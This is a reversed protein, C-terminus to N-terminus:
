GSSQSFQFVVPFCRSLRSERADEDLFCFTEKEAELVRIPLLRECVVTVLPLTSPSRHKALEREAEVVHDVMM